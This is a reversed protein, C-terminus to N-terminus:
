TLARRLAHVLKVNDAHTRVTVRFYRRNLGSINGAARIVLGKKGLRDSLQNSDPGDRSLRVLIFNCDSPTVTLGSIRSLEKELYGRERAILRQMSHRHATAALLPGVLWLSLNSLTGPVRRRSLGRLFAPPGIMWGVRLSPAGSLKSVSDVVVVRHRRTQAAMSHSRDDPVFGLYAEDILLYAGAADALRALALLKAPTYLRGTPNNPNCVVIARTKHTIVESIAELDLDFDPTLKVLTTPCDWQKAASAYESYTPVPIIVHGPSITQFFLHILETSGAGVVVSDSSVASFKGIAQRVELPDRPSYLYLRRFERRLDFVQRPMVPAVTNAFSTLSEVPVKRRAAIVWELEGGHLGETM